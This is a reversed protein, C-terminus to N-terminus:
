SILHLEYNVTLIGQLTYLTKQKKKSFTALTINMKYFLM